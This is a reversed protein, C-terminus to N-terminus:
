DENRFALDNSLHITLKATKSIITDECIKNIDQIMSDPDVRSITGGTKDALVALKDVSCGNGKMTMINLQIGKEAAKKGIGEYFQQSEELYKGFTDLSGLGINALGDTCLIIQNSQNDLSELLNYSVLLGPGLATQKNAFQENYRNM